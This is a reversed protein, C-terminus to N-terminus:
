DKVKFIQFTYQEEKYCGSQYEKLTMKEYDFDTVKVIGEMGFLVIDRFYEKPFYKEFIEQINEKTIMECPFCENPSLGQSIIVYM